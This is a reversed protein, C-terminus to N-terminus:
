VRIGKKSLGFVWCCQEYCGSRPKKELGAKEVPKQVLLLCCHTTTGLSSVVWDVESFRKASRAASQPGVALLVHRPLYGIVMGGREKVAAAVKNVRDDTLPPRVALLFQYNGLLPGWHADQQPLARSGGLPPETEPRFLM